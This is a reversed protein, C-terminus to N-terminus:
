FTRNANILPLKRGSVFPSSRQRMRGNKDEDPIISPRHITNMENNSSNETNFEEHEHISDELDMSAASSATTICTDESNGRRKGSIGEELLEIEKLEDGTSLSSSRTFKGFFKRRKNTKKVEEMNESVTDGEEQHEILEYTETIMKCVPDDHPAKTWGQKWALLCYVALVIAEVMGYLLPVNMAEARQQNDDFMAVAVSTAIGANQYCCEVSLTVREPGNLSFTLLNALLLGLFCPLSVGVYFTWNQEWLRIDSDGIQGDEDEEKKTFTSMLFSFVVLAVGCISGFRNAWRRFNNSKIVYSARLGSLIAVIVTALSIFIATWDIKDLISDERAGYVAHSYLLLNAPLMFTSLLTSIATMGVSLALEANFMSCWWNSYSGGPSSTVVLLVIGLEPKFNSEGLLKLTCFGLFPMIFFQMGVGIGVAKKNKMQEILVDTEVTASMGFILMFLLINSFIEALLDLTQDSVM